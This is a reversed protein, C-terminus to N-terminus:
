GSSGHGGIVEDSYTNIRAIIERTDRENLGFGQLTALLHEVFRAFHKRTIGRGHHAHAMSRGEYVVPGGLAAAFFIRQMNQLRQVDAGEFVPALLPDTLVRNYFDSVLRYITADGGIRDYLNEGSGTQPFNASPTHDASAM